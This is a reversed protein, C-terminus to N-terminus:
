RVRECRMETNILLQLCAKLKEMTTDLFSQTRAYNGKSNFSGRRLILDSYNDDNPLIVSRFENLNLKGDLDKDYRLLALEIEISTPYLRILNLVEEFQRRTIVGSDNM